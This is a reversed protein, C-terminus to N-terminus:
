QEYVEKILKVADEHTMGLVVPQGSRDKFRAMESGISEYRGSEQWLSAPMVVPFMVEQGDIKDMEERIINEIKTTAKFGLPLLSFIGAGLQRIYGARLLYEYGKCDAGNPAERLTRSFMNSMRM